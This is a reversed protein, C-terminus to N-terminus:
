YCCFKMCLVRIYRWYIVMQKWRGVSVQLCSMELLVQYQIVHPMIVSSLPCLCSDFPFLFALWVIHDIGCNQLPVHLFHIPYCTFYDSINMNFIFIFFSFRTIQLCTLILNFIYFIFRLFLITQFNFILGNKLQIM